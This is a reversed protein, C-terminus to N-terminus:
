EYYGLILENNEKAYNYETGDYYYSDMVEFYLDDM